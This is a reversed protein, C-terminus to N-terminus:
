NAYPGCAWLVSGGAASLAPGAIAMARECTLISAPSLQFGNSPPRAMGFFVSVRSSHSFRSSSSSNSRCSSCLKGALSGGFTVRRFRRRFAAQALPGDGGRVVYFATFLAKYIGTQSQGSAPRASFSRGRHSPLFSRDPM